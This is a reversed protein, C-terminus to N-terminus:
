TSPFPHVDEVADVVTVIKDLGGVGTTDAPPGSVNQEPPVTVSVDELADPLVQLVPAVVCDIVTFEEPM